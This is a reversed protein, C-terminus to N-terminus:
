PGDSVSCSETAPLLLALQVPPDEGGLTENTWAARYGALELRRAAERQLDVPPVRNFPVPLYAGVPGLSQGAADVMNASAVVIM